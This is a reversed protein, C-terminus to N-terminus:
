QFRYVTQRKYVDLHTYSVAIKNEIEDPLTAFFDMHTLREISDITVVYSHRPDTAQENKFLFGIARIPKVFPSLSDRICM